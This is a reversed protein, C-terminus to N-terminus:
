QADLQFTTLLERFQDDYMTARVTHPTLWVLWAKGGAMFAAETQVYQAGGLETPFRIIAAQSGAVEVSELVEPEVGRQERWHAIRSELVQDYSPGALGFLSVPDGSSFTLLLAEDPASFVDAMFDGSNVPKDGPSWASPYEVSYGLESDLRKWGDRVETPAATRVLTPSTATTTSPTVAASTPAPSTKADDDDGCALVLALAVGVAIVIWSRFNLM